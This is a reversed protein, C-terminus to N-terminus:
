FISYGSLKGTVKNAVFLLIFNIISNFLGIASSYSYNPRTAALGVKYVYTSIVESIEINMTNQMLFVKEYGVGMLGGFSFILQMCITPMIGPIDVHWVRQWRSAGDLIAAEHLTPDIASLASIYLISGFGTGQWIGSWVYLHRFNTSSALIDPGVTNTLATYISGYLGSRNNLVTYLFGVMVVTSFFNPIYTVTQIAKKYKPFPLVNLLLAFLITIPFGAVLGYVSLILTNKILAWFRYSNFFTSFNDLGVWPSGWIGGRFNFDKFAIVIGGMPIYCFVFIYLVPLLLFLYLQWRSLIRKSLPKQHIKMTSPINKNM